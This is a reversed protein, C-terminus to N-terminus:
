RIIKQAIQEFIASREPTEFRFLDPHFEAPINEWYIHM